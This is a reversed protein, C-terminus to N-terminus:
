FIFNQMLTYFNLYLRMQIYFYVEFYYERLKLVANMVVSLKLHLNFVLEQSIVHVVCPSMKFLINDYSM